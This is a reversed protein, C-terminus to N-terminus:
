GGRHRHLHRKLVEQLLNVQLEQIVHATAGGDIESVEGRVWGWGGELDARGM